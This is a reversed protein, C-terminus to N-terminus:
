FRGRGRGRGSPADPLDEGRRWEGMPLGGRGFGDQRGGGRGRGPRRGPGNERERERERGPGMLGPARGLVPGAEGAGAGRGMRASNVPAVSGDGLPPLIAVSVFDGVVFRADSLTKVSDAGELKTEAEVDVPDLGPGGDGIM